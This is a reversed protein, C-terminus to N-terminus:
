ILLPINVAIRIQFELGCGNELRSGEARKGFHGNPMQSCMGKIGTSM